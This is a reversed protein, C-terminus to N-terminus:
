HKKILKKRWLNKKIFLIVTATFFLQGLLFLWWKFQDPVYSTALEVIENRNSAAFIEIFTFRQMLHATYDEVYSIITIVSGIILLSWELAQIKAQGTKEYSRIILSALIIMFISNIIPAIVPGVWTLPILFLIDWTLLSAPWGLVLKLFVYYFIDWFAFALIFMAFRELNKRGAIIAVSLLIIMTSFERLIETIAVPNNISKLPFAFGEPYYIERLYIVVASEMFAMAIGFIIVWTLNRIRKSM